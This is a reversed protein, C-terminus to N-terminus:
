GFFQSPTAAGSVKSRQVPLEPKGGIDDVGDRPV